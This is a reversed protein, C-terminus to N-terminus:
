NQNLLIRGDGKNITFSTSKTGTSIDTHNEGLSVNVESNPSSVVIGNEFDRFYANDKEYYEGLPQGLDADYEPFWWAQGHDRPGFDYAFYTNDNLLSLTLGLRMRNMDKIGTDDTDVGYIVIYHSDAARLGDDFGMNLQTGLFNEMLYGDFYESFEDIDSL